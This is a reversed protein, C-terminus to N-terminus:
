RLENTADLHGHPTCPVKKDRSLLRVPLVYLGRAVYPRAADEFTMLGGPAPSLPERTAGSVGREAVAPAPGSLTAPPHPRSARDLRSRRVRPLHLWRAM